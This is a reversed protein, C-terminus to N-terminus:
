SKKNFLKYAMLALGRKYGYKKNKAYKFLKNWWNIESWLVEDSATRKPLNKFDGYLMDHQFCVKGLENHYIYRSDGTEKIKQIKEKIKTFLRCATYTFGTQRLDMEPM